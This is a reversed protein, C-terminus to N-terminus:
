NKKAARTALTVSYDAQKWVVVQLQKQVAGLDDSVSYYFSNFPSSFNTAAENYNKSYGYAM